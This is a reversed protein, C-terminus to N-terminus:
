VVALNRTWPVQGTPSRRVGPETSAELNERGAERSRGNRRFENFYLNRLITFIWAKFNTGPTYQEFASLARLVADQVLDDARDRDGTLSRAFARLHPLCALIDNDISTTM